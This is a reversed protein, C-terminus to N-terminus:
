LFTCHPRSKRQNVPQKSDSGVHIIFIVGVHTCTVDWAWGAATKM